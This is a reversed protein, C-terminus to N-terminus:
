KWKWTRPLGQPWTITGDHTAVPSPNQDPHQAGLSCRSLPLGPEPWLSSVHGEIGIKRRLDISSGVGQPEVSGWCSAEPIDTHLGEEWCLFKLQTTLVCGNSYSLIIGFPYKAHDHNKLGKSIQLHFTGLLVSCWKNEGIFSLGSESTNGVFLEVSDSVCWHDRLGQLAIKRTNYMRWTM